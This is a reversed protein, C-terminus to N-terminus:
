KTRTTLPLWIWYPPVYLQKRGVVPIAAVNRGEVKASFSATGRQNTKVITDIQYRAVAGPALTGNRFGSDDSVFGSGGTIKGSGVVLTTSSPYQLASSQIAEVPVAGVNTITVTFRLTDGARGQDDAPRSLDDVRGIAALVPKNSLVTFKVRTTTKISANGMAVIDITSSYVGASLLAPDARITITTSGAGNAPSAALWSPPTSVKWKLGANATLSLTKTVVDGGSVGTFALAAPKADLSGTVSAPQPVVSASIQSSSGVRGPYANDNLTSVVVIKVDKNPLAGDYRFQGDKDADVTAVRKTSDTTTFFVDVLSLPNATGQVVVTSYGDDSTASSIQPTQAWNNAHAPDDDGGFVGGGELGQLTRPFPDRITVQQAAVGNQTLISVSADGSGVNGEGSQGPKDGLVSGSGNSTVVVGGGLYSQHVVVAPGDLILAAHRAPMAIPSGSSYALGLNVACVDANAGSIGLSLDGGVINVNRLTADAGMKVVPSIDDSQARITVLAASRDGCSDTRRRGVEVGDPISLTSQVVIADAGIDGFLVLDGERAHKLVFRLSGRRDPVKGDNAEDSARDVTWEITNAARAPAVVVALLFAVILWLVKYTAAM